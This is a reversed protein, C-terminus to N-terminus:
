KLSRLAAGACAAVRKHSSGVLVKLRAAVDAREIGIMGIATAAEAVLEPDEDDLAALLAPLADGVRLHGLAMAARSREEPDDARRVLLGLGRLAAPRTPDIRAIAVAAADRVLDHFDATMSGNRCRTIRPHRQQGDTAVLADLAPWARNGMAGLCEAAFERALPDETELNAVLESVDQSPPHTLRYRFRYWLKLKEIWSRFARSQAQVRRPLDFPNNDLQADLTEPAAVDPALRALTRLLEADDVSVNSSVSRLLTPVVLDSISPGMLRLVRLARNAGRRSSEDAGAREIARLLDPVVGEGQAVTRAMAERDLEPATLLTDLHEPAVAPDQTASSAVLASWVLVARVLRGM